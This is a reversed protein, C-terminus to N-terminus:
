HAILLSIKWIKNSLGAILAHMRATAKLAKMQQNFFVRSWKRWSKCVFTHKLMKPNELETVSVVSMGLVVPITAHRQMLHGEKQVPHARSKVTV